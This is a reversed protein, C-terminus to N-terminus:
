PTDKLADIAALADAKVLWWQAARDPVGEWFETPAIEAVAERAAQVGAAFGLNYLHRVEDQRVQPVASEYAATKIRQEYARLANCICDVEDCLTCDGGRCKPPNGDCFQPCEPLHGSM